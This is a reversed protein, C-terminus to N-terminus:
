IQTTHAIDLESIFQEYWVLKQIEYSDSNEQFNVIDPIQM